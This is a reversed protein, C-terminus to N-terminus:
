KEALSDEDAQLGTKLLSVIAYLLISVKSHNNNSLAGASKTNFLQNQPRSYNRRWRVKASKYIKVYIILLVVFPLYFAGITSYLTFLLNQSIKCTGSQRTDAEMLTFIVSPLAILLSSLYVPAIMFFAKQPNSHYIYAVKGMMIWYRDLGIMCLTMISATCFFIDAFLWTLCLVYPLDSPGIVLMFVKVPMVFAGVMLDSISLSAVLYMSMNHLSCRRYITFLVLVNGLLTLFVVVGYVSVEITTEVVELTETILLPSSSSSLLSPSPPSSNLSLETYSGVISIKDHKEGEEVSLFTEGELQNQTLAISM